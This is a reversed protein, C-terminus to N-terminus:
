RYKTAILFGATVFGLGLFLYGNSADGPLASLYNLIVILVGLGFCVFMLVPVWTPSRVLHRPTPPTYRSPKPSAPKRQPEKDQAPRPM